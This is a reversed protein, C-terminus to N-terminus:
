INYLKALFFEIKVEWNQVKDISASLPFVICPLFWDSIGKSVNLNRRTQENDHQRNLMDNCYVNRHLDNLPRLPSVLPVLLSIAAQGRIDVFIITYYKLNYDYYYYHWPFFRWQRSQFACTPALVFYYQNSLSHRHFLLVPQPRRYTQIVTRAGLYTLSSTM